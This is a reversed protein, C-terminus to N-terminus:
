RKYPLRNDQKTPILKSFKKIKNLEEKDKKGIYERKGNKYSYWYPGHGEKNPGYCKTCNDKNCFVKELRFYIGSKNIYTDILRKQKKEKKKLKYNREVIKRVKRLEKLTLATLM